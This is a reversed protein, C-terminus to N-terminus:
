FGENTNTPLKLESSGPGGGSMGNNPIWGGNGDDIPNGCEDLLESRTVDYGWQKELQAETLNREAKIKDERLELDARENQVKYEALAEAMEFNIAEKFAAPIVAAYAKGMEEATLQGKSKADALHQRAIYLLDNVAGGIYVPEGNSDVSQVGIVDSWKVYNCDGTCKAEIMAQEKQADTMSDWVDQPINDPKILPCAM